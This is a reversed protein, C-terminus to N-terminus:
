QGARKGATRTPNLSLWLVTRLETEHDFALAATTRMLEAAHAHLVVSENNPFYRYATARSV